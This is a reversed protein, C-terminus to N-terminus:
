ATIRIYTELNGLNKPIKLKTIAELRNATLRRGLRNVKYSLLTVLLYEIFSKNLNLM